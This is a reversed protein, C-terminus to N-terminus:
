LGQLRFIFFSFPALLLQRNENKEAGRMQVVLGSVEPSDEPASSIHEQTEQPLQPSAARTGDARITPSSRNGAAGRRSGVLKSDPRALARDEKRYTGRPRRHPQVEASSVPWRRYVDTGSGSFQSLSDGAAARAFLQSPGMLTNEKAPNRRLVRLLSQSSSNPRGFHAGRENRVDPVQEKRSLLRLWGRLSRTLVRYLFLDVIREEWPPIYLTRHRGNFNYHLAVAARFGFDKRKLSDHIGTLRELGHAAFDYLMKGDTSTSLAKRWQFVPKTYVGIAAKYLEAESYVGAWRLPLRIEALAHEPM